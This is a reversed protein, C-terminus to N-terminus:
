IKLRSNFDALSRKVGAFSLKKLKIARMLYWVSSGMTGYKYLSKNFIMLFIMFRITLGSIIIFQIWSASRIFTLRDMLLLKMFGFSIFTPKEVIAAITSRLFFSRTVFFFIASKKGSIIKKGEKRLLFFTPSYDSKKNLQENHKLVEGSPFSKQKVLTTVVYFSFCGKFCKTLNPIM